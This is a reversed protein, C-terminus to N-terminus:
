GRGRRGAAITASQTMAGHTAPPHAAPGFGGGAFGSTAGAVCGEADNGM